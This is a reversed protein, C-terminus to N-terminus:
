YFRVGGKVVEMAVFCHLGVVLIGEVGRRGFRCAARFTSKAYNKGGKFFTRVCYCFVSKWIDACHYTGLMLFDTLLYM